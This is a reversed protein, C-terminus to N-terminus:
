RTGLKSLARSAVCSAGSAAPGPGHHGAFLCAVRRQAMGGCLFSPAQALGVGRPAQVLGLHIQAQALGLGMQAQALGLYTRSPHTISVPHHILIFEEKKRCKEKSGGMIWKTATDMIFGDIWGDDM